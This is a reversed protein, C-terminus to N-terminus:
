ALGMAPDLTVWRPDLWSRAPPYREPALPTTTPKNTDIQNKTQQKSKMKNLHAQDAFCGKQQM